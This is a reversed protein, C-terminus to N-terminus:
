STGSKIGNGVIEESLADNEYCNMKFIKGLFNTTCIIYVRRLINYNNNVTVKM